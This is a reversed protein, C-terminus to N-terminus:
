SSEDSDSYIRFTNKGAIKATYMAMDSMKVLESASDSHDPAIAIGMSCSVAFQQGKYTVPENMTANIRMAAENIYEIDAFDNVLVAFEDGGLRAVTDSERASVKLRQAIEYLVHDGTDHGYGDNISKFEDLDIFFLAVRKKNRRVLKLALDLRDLFVLRNSLGTLSDHTANFYLKSELKEKSLLFYIFVLVSVLLLVLIGLISYTLYVGEKLEKTIDVDMQLVGRVDGIKWDKKPSLPHNNHCDVCSSSTMKDAVAVKVLMAGDEEKTESFVVNPKKLVGEWILNETQDLTAPTRHKFKYPSFLKISMGMSQYKDSLDKIMTAPLPIGNSLNKHNHTVLLQKNAVAKKVVSNTYYERFISFQQLTRTAHKVATNESFAQVSSPVYYMLGLLVVAFLTLIMISFRKFLVRSIM